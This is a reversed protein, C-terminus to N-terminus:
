HKILELPTLEYLEDIRRYLQDRNETVGSYIEQPSRNCTIWVYKARWPCYSGMTHVNMAGFDLLNLLYSFQCWNDRFDDLIVSEEGQYGYFYKLPETARWFPKLSLTQAMRSKGTGTPGYLWRVMPKGIFPEMTLHILREFGRHYKVFTTSYDVAVQVIGVGAKIADCVTHVDTRNGQARKDVEVYDGDKKCYTIM